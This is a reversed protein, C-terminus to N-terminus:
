AKILEYWLDLTEDDLPLQEGLQLTSPHLVAEWVIEKAEETINAESPPLVDKRRPFSFESLERIQSFAQEESRPIQAM